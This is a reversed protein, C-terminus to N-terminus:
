EAAGIGCACGDSSTMRQVIPLVAERLDDVSLPKALVCCAGAQIMSRGRELSQGPGSLAVMVPGDGCQSDGVIRLLEEIGVNGVDEAVLVIQAPSHRLATRLKQTLSRDQSAM